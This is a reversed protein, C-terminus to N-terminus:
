PAAGGALRIASRIARQNRFWLGYYNNVSFFLWIGVVIWAKELYDLGGIGLLVLGVVASPISAIIILSLLRFSYRVCIQDRIEYLAFSGENVAVYRDFSFQYLLSNRFSIENGVVQPELHQKKLSITLSRRVEDLGVGVPTEACTVGELSIPFM